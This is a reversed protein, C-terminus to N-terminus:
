GTKGMLKSLEARAKGIDLLPAKSSKGYQCKGEEHSWGFKRKRSPSLTGLAVRPRLFAAREFDIWTMGPRDPHILINRSGPGGAISAASILRVFWPHGRRRTDTPNAITIPIRWLESVDTVSSDFCSACRQSRFVNIYYVTINSDWPMM